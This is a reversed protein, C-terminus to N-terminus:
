VIKTEEAFLSPNLSYLCHRNTMQKVLIIGKIKLRQLTHSLTVNLSGLEVALEETTLDKSFFPLLVTLERKTLGHKQAFKLGPILNYPEM